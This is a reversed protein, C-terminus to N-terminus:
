KQLYDFAIVLWNQYLIGPRSDPFKKQCINKFSNYIEKRIFLHNGMGMNLYNWQPDIKDFFETSHNIEDLLPCLTNLKEVLEKPVNNYFPNIRYMKLNNTLLEIEGPHGMAGGEAITIFNINQYSIENINSEDIQVKEIEENAQKRELSQIKKDIDSILKNIKEKQESDIKNFDKDPENDDIKIPKPPEINNESFEDLKPFEFDDWFHDNNDDELNNKKLIKNAGKLMKKMKRYDHKVKRKESFSSAEKKKEKYENKLDKLNDEM